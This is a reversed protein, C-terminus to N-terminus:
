GSIELDNVVMSFFIRHEEDSWGGLCRQNLSGVTNKKAKGFKKNHM